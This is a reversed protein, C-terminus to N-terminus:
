QKLVFIKLKARCSGDFSAFPYCKNTNAKM